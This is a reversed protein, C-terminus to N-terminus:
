VLLMSGVLEDKERFFSVMYKTGHVVCVFLRLFISIKFKFDVSLLRREETPNSVKEPRQTKKLYFFFLTGTCESNWSLLWPSQFIYVYLIYALLSVPHFVWFTFYIFM